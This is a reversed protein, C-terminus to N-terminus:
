IKEVSFIEVDEEKGRLFVSGLPRFTFNADKPLLDKVHSSILLNEGYKNCQAQIRAATNLVDSLYAIDRKIDGIEAVTVPGSNVGAKFEPVLDYEKKYYDSKSELREQFDFYVHICNSNRTGEDMTWTLIAEDGVYQYIEVEHKIASDTLDHFCDQILRCFRAHGLQVAYTTSSKLDLFMFIRDEDRPYRYKGFVLNKLVRPGVMYATQRIFGLMASVIGIYLLIVLVLKSTMNEIFTPVIQDAQIAGTFFAILRLILGLLLTVMLMTIVKISILFGYSRRRFQPKDSVMMTFWYATGFFLGVLIWVGIFIQTNAAWDMTDQTGFFRILMYLGMAMLWAIVSYLLSSLKNM